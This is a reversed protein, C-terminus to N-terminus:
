KNRMGKSVNTWTNDISNWYDSGGVITYINPNNLVNDAESNSHIKPDPNYKTWDFDKTYDNTWTITWDTWGTCDCQRVWPANVRGCRPCLWGEEPKSMQTMKIM